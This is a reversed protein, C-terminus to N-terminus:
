LDSDVTDMEADATEFLAQVKGSLQVAAASALLFAGLLVAAVLRWSLGPRRSSQVEDAPDTAVPAGEQEATVAELTRAVLAAPPDEEPLDSLMTDLAQLGPDHGGGFM